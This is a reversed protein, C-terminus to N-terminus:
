CNFAKLVSVNECSKKMAGPFIYSYSSSAVSDM